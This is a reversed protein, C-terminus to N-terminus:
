TCHLMIYTYLHICMYAGAKSHAAGVSNVTQCRAQSKLTRSHKMRSSALKSM